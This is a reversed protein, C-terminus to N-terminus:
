PSDTEPTTPIEATQISTSNQNANQNNERKQIDAFSRLMISEAYLKWASRTQPNAAMSEIHYGLSIYHNVAEDFFPMRDNLWKRQIEPQYWNIRPYDDYLDEMNLCWKEWRAHFKTILEWMKSLSPFYESQEPLDGIRTESKEVYQKLAIPNKAIEIHARPFANKLASFRAQNPTHVMAQYHITGNEGQEKQGTVKWGKQLALRINEDDAETPNNITISWYTSKVTTSM